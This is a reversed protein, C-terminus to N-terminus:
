RAFGVFDVELDAQRNHKTMGETKQQKRRNKGDSVIESCPRIGIFCLRKLPLEDPDILTLDCDPEFIVFVESERDVLKMGVILRPNVGM